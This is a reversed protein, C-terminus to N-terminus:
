VMSSSLPVLAKMVAHEALPESLQVKPCAGTRKEREYKRENGEGQIHVTLRPVHGQLRALSLWGGYALYPSLLLKIVVGSDNLQFGQSSKVCLLRYSTMSTAPQRTQLTFIHFPLHLFSVPLLHPHQPHQQSVHTCCAPADCALAKLPPM